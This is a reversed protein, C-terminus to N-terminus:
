AASLSILFNEPEGGGRKKPPPPLKSFSLEKKRRDHNVGPPLMPQAGDGYFRVAYAHLL